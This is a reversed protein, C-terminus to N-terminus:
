GLLLHGKEALFSLNTSPTVRLVMTPVNRKQPIFFGFNNGHRGPSKGLHEPVTPTYSVMKIGPM